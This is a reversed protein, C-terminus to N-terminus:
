VNEIIRISRSCLENMLTNNEETKRKINKVVPGENQHSIVRINVPKTQGYRWIRRLGQYYQEWSDSLGVFIANNCHHQFNMGFGAISPKTILCKLRGKSFKTLSSEKKDTKDSGKIAVSGNILKNLLDSESNLNCWVLVNEGKSLMRNAINAAKQCREEISEKRVSNRQLMGMSDQDISDDLEGVKLNTIKLAPLTHSDDCFGLDSPMRIGISWTTMWDYFREKGHHKLRWKSTRASDHTFFMALMQQQNMHRLFESQTGIEMFDNPSPTATCSLLYNHSDCFTNIQARVKGMMGKLISSEDLVVAVYDEPNLNHLQEYNVIHIFSIDQGFKDAENKTQAAVALPTLILIKGGTEEHVQNAWALQMATKGMGTDAFIAFRGVQLAKKVIHKQYDFLYEPLEDIKLNFGSMEEKPIKDQLFQKYEASIM